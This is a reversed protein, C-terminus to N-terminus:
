GIGGVQIAISSFNAFGCCAFSAIVTAKHSLLGEKIMPAMDAYAVFENIVMKTGLFGGVTLIENAPVGMCYAFVSFVAGFLNSLSFSDGNVPLGMWHLTWGFKVFLVNVLAILAIFGILM